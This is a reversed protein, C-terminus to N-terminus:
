VASVTYISSDSLLLQAFLQDRASEFELTYEDLQVTHIGRIYLEVGATFTHTDCLLLELSYKYNFRLRFM